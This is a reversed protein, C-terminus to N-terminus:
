IKALEFAYYRCYDITERIESLFDPICKGAERTLLVALEPMAQQFLDAAKDIIAARESVPMTGWNKTEAVAASLAEEVDAETAKNVHGIVQSTDSPSVM